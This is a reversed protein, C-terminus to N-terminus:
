NKVFKLVTVEDNIVSRLYYCGSALEVTSIKLIKVNADEVQLNQITRGSADQITISIEKGNISNNLLINLEDNVPNPFISISSETSECNVSLPGYKESEGNFDVQILRYYAQLNLRNMKDYFLYELTQTSNGAAIVEGIKEWTKGDYSREIEFHSSNSESVTKWKIEINNNTEICNVEISSLEVPLPSNISSGHLWFESFSTISHTSFSSATVSSYATTVGNAVQGHITTGASGGSLPCNNLVVNDVNLPGSYKSLKLDTIATVNDSPNVNAGSVTVLTTLESNQFPLRVQVATTPQISPTIVWHRQMVATNYSAVTPFDCAVMVQNTADLYNTVTVNGLNQGLSNVSALLRGSSHYFHIWGNQNVLCTASQNNLGLNTGATPLTLTVSGPLTLNCAVADYISTLTYTTTTTPSVVISWTGNGTGTATQGNSLTVIWAGTATVNGTLTFNTGHCITSSTSTFTANPVTYTITVYGNGANTGSCTFGTPRLSSGSGGGGGGNAGTCCNDGGGGGGGYLGGGGGGGPGGYTNDSGGNGGNGLTGASGNTGGGWAVGGAGGATTTAGVGGNGYGNAGNAGNPCNTNAGNAHDSGGGYGGGGGAVVIRNALNYPTTRIDSAGGGGGSGTIGAFGNGGGNYGGAFISGAGGVRIQLVQGPTVTLNGTLIAGNGGGAGGGKAGAITVAVSTVCPPVTWNQTGGTYNFTVTTQSHAFTSIVLSIIVFAFRYRYPRNLILTLPFLRQM